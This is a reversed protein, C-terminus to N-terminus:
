YLEDADIKRIEGGPLDLIYLNRGNDVFSLKKGDPSWKLYSYFGAGNLKIVRVTGKGDEGQLFLANEGSADSIYAITRGDPSWAPATEHVAVTQTLNRYDGKEAPVTVIDGRFDFVVRSGSPSIDAWRIYNNGKVFRPRLELLD